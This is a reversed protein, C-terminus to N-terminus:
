DDGLAGEAVRRALAARGAVGLKGFIRSLHTEVTRPSLFLRAAIQPTTLGQAVLEAIERERASLRDQGGTRPLRASLRRQELGVWTTLWPSGCATFLDKALGLQERAAAPDGARMLIGAALTRTFGEGVPLEAARFHDLATFAAERARTLHGEALHLAAEARAVSGAQARPAGNAAVAAAREWWQWGGAVDGCAAEAQSRLAYVSPAHPGLGVPDATLRGALLDRCARPDGLFFHVEALSHDAINRWWVSRLGPGDQAEGALASMLPVAAGPGEQWLLPRSKVALVFTRLEASGFHRAIEEGDEADALAQPTQGLSAHVVSRVVCLQPVVHSRGYRRAVRLGREVHRLADTHEDVLFEGWALPAVLGVDDRLQVDTLADAGRRAEALLARGRDFRCRYLEALALLTTAVVAIGARTGPGARRALRLAATAQEAGSHWEGRLMDTAALEVLLAARAQTSDDTTRALEGSLLARAEALRGLAREASALWELAHHRHPTPGTVLEHLIARAEELRGSVTLAKALAMRLEARHEAGHDGPHDAGHPAAPGPLAHLAARLWRVATAPATELSERAAAALLEAGEADGPRVGHRMHEARHSLPAGRRALERAARRHAAARWAPGALRYAAARVLPHRFTLDGDTVRLVDRVVLEDLAARVEAEPLEAVAAVLAADLPDDAVSAAQATARAAPPLSDLERAILTDLGTDQGDRSLTHGTAQLRGVTREPLQDLIELYLPNGRSIEYLRRRYAPPRGPLLADADDPSLPRLPLRTVPATCTALSRALAAPLRGSRAALVVAVARPPHRVLYDILEVSATDAWHVDDLLLVLGRHAAARELAARVRRHTRHRETGLVPAGDPTGDGAATLAARLGEAHAALEPHADADALADLVLAWPVSHEPETARGCLVPAAGAREALAACASLLRSKGIGPEGTVVAFATGGAATLRRLATLETRRGPLEESAAGM